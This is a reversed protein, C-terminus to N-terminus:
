SHLVLHRPEQQKQNSVNRCHQWIIDRFYNTSAYYTILAHRSQYTLTKKFLIGISDKVVVSVSNNKDLM